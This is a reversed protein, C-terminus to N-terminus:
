CAKILKASKQLKIVWRGDYSSLWKDTIIRRAQLKLPILNKKALVEGIPVINEEFWCRGEGILGLALHALPALDGSAGVSGQQPIAPLVDANLYEIIKEIVLPRIGSHGRALANARLYMIARTQEPSFLNGVGASHSRIINIQLKELDRSDITVNSLAGFGTNVGYIIEGNEVRNMLYKRSVLMKERAENSLCVKGEPGGMGVQWVNNINVDNGTIEIM